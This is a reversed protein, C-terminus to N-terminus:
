HSFCHDTPRWNNRTVPKIVLVTGITNTTVKYNAVKVSFSFLEMFQEALHPKVPIRVPNERSAIQNVSAREGEPHCQHGALLAEECHASIM